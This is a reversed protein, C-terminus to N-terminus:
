EVRLHRVRDESSFTGLETGSQDIVHIAWQRSLRVGEFAVRTASPEDAFPGFVKDAGRDAVRWQGPEDESVVWVDCDSAVGRAGVDINFRNRSARVMIM